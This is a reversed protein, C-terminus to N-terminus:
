TAVRFPLVPSHSKEYLRRRAEHAFDHDETIREVIWNVLADSYQRSSSEPEWAFAENSAIDHTKVILQFDYTSPLLAPPLRDKLMKMVEKQRYPCIRHRNVAIAESADPNTTIRVPIGSTGSPDLASPRLVTLQSGRPAESVQQMGKVLQDQMEKIRNQLFKRLDDTTASETKAGHRFFLTGQAFATQQYKSGEIPYTGPKEFVLPYDPPDILFIAVKLGDKEVEAIEFDAYNQNTYKRILDYSKAHDYDIVARVNGGTAEGVNNIGIALTGGGSNGIAVIDKLIELSQRPDTPVFQEKFGVAKSERKAMLCKTIRPDVM